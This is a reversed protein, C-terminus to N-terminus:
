AVEYSINFDIFDNTTWTFPITSSIAVGSLYSANTVSAQIYLLNTDEVVNGIFTGTGSDTLSVLTTLFGGAGSAPNFPLGLSPSGTISSTSGFTFKYKVFIIKGIQLYKGSLTGNGVTINNITPTFSTWTGVPSAEWAL